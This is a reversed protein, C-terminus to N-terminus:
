MGTCEPQAQTMIAGDLLAPGWQNLDEDVDGVTCVPPQFVSSSFQPTGGGVFIYNPLEYSAHISGFSQAGTAQFIRRTQQQIDDSDYFSGEWESSTIDTHAPPNIFGQDYM